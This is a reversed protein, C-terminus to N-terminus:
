YIPASGPFDAWEDLQPPRQFEVRDALFDATAAIVSHDPLIKRHGLRRTRKFRADPWSRAVTLGSEIRMDRDNQDHIILAKATLTSVAEPMEFEHWNM